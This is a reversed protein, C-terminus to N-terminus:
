AARESAADWIALVEAQGPMAMVEAHRFVGVEAYAAHAAMIRGHAGSRAFPKM